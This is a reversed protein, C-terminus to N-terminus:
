PMRNSLNSIFSPMSRDVWQHYGFVACLGSVYLCCGLGFALASTTLVTSEFAFEGYVGEDVTVEEGRDLEVYDV